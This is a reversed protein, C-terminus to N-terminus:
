FARKKAPLFHSICFRSIKWTSDSYHWSAASKTSNEQQLELGQILLDSPIIEINKAPFDLTILKNERKALLIGSSYHFAIQQLTPNLYNFVVFAASFTGHGCLELEDEATFWRIHFQDKEQFIFATVPLSNEVAIKKLLAVPLWKNLVCVAAPNGSFLQHTFAHVHYIPINM